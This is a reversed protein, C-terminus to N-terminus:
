DLGQIEKFLKVLKVFGDEAGKKDLAGLEIDDIQDEGILVNYAKSGDSWVETALSIKVGNVIETELIKKNSLM